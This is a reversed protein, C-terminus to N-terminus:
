TKGYVVLVICLGCSHRQRRETIKTAVFCLESGICVPICKGAQNKKASEQEVNEYLTRICLTYTVVSFSGIPVSM